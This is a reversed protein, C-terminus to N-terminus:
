DVAVQALREQSKGEEGHIRLWREPVPPHTKSNAGGPLLAGLWNQPPEHVIGDPSDACAFSIYSANCPSPLLGSALQAALDHPPDPPATGSNSSAFLQATANLYYSRRHQALDRKPLRSVPGCRGSHWFLSTTPAAYCKCEGTFFYDCHHKVSTCTQSCAHTRTTPNSGTPNSGTPNRGSGEGPKAPNGASTELPQYNLQRTAENRDIVTGDPGPYGCQCNHFCHEILRHVDRRLSAGCILTNVECICALNRPHQGLSACLQFLNWFGSTFDPPIYDPLPGPCDIPSSFM